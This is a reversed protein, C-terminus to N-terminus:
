AQEGPAVGFNTSTNVSARSKQEPFLLEMAAAVAARPNMGRM